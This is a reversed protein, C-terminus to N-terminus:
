AVARRAEWFNIVRTEIWRLIAAVLAVLGLAGVFLAWGESTHMFGTGLAPDVYHMLFATLFIRVSNIAIAIPISLLILVVRAPWGRLYMGGMMVGLAILASLSRLGSCAEAVFLRQGPITIVNGSLRVPIGRWEIMKTGLESAHFQLPIALTNTIVGPLPIALLLLTLPLWWHKLQQWGATFLVIGILAGWMSARMTFLDAALGSTWRLLIALVLVVTGMIRAPTANPAVGAKWALWLAVPFLLLGHGADPNNWWDRGLTQMPALFLVVFAAAAAAAPLAVEPRRLTASVQPLNFPTEAERGVAVSGPAVM